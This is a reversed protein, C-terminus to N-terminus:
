LKVLLLIIILENSDVVLLSCCTGAMLHNLLKQCYYLVTGYKKLYNASSLLNSRRKLKTEGSIRKNQILKVNGVNWGVIIITMNLVKQTLSSPDEYSIWDSDRTAYPALRITDYHRIAGEQLFICTEPYAITGNFMGLGKAPSGVGNWESAKLRHM